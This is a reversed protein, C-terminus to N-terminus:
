RLECACDEEHENYEQNERDEAGLLELAYEVLAASGIRFWIFEVILVNPRLGIVIPCARQVSSALVGTICPIRATM